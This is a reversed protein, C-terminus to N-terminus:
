LRNITLGSSAACSYIYVTLAKLDTEVVRTSPGLQRTDFFAGSNVARTSPGHVRTCKKVNAVGDVRGTFEPRSSPYHFGVKLTVQRSVPILILDSGLAQMRQAVVKVQRYVYLIGAKQSM